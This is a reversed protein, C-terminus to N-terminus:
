QTSVDQTSEVDRKSIKVDSLKKIKVPYHVGTVPDRATQSFYKTLRKEVGVPADIICADHVVAIPDFNSPFLEAAREFRSWAIDVASAQTYWSPVLRSDPKQIKRGHPTVIMGASHTLEDIKFTSRVSGLVSLSLNKSDTFNKGAGFVAALVTLKADDRKGPIGIKEALSLYADSEGFDIGVRAGLVRAEFESMDVYYLCGNNSAAHIRSSWTENTYNHGSVITPRGTKTSVFDYVPRPRGPLQAFTSAFQMHRKWVTTFYEDSLGALDRVQELVSGLWTKIVHAPCVDFVGLGALVSEPVPLDPTFQMGHTWALVQASERVSPSERTYAIGSSNQVRKFKGSEADIQIKISSIKSTLDSDIFFQNM